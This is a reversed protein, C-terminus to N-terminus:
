AREMGANMQWQPGLLSPQAPSSAQAAAPDPTLPHRLVHHHAGPSRNLSPHAAVPADILPAWLSHPLGPPPIAEEVMYVRYGM